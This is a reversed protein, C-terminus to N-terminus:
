LLKSLLKPFCFYKVFIQLLTTTFTRLLMEGEFIKVVYQKWRLSRMLNTLSSKAATLRLPNFFMTSGIIGAHLQEALVSWSYLLWIVRGISVNLKWGFSLFAFIKSLWRFWTKNTNMPYSESLVWLHTGMHCPKLWKEPKKCWKTNAFDMVLLMRTLQIERQPLVFM